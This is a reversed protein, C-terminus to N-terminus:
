FGRQEDSEHFYPIFLEGGGGGGGGGRAERGKKERKGCGHFISSYPDLLLFVRTSKERQIKFFYKDKNKKKFLYQFKTIEPM